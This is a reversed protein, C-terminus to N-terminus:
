KALYITDIGLWTVCLELRRSTTTAQGGDDNMPPLKSRYSWFAFIRWLRTIIWIKFCVFLIKLFVFIETVFFCFYFYFLFVFIESVFFWFYFYFLFRFNRFCFGLFLFLFRFNWFCFGLFLFLIFYRFFIM